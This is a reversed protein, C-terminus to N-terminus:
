LHRWWPIPRDHEVENPGHTQLLAEAQAEDLGLASSNLQTLVEDLDARAQEVLRRNQSGEPPATRKGRAASELIPRRRFLGGSRRSAWFRGFYYRFFDM